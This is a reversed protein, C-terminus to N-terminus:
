LSLRVRVSHSRRRHDADRWHTGPRQLDREDLRLLERVSLGASTTAGEQGVPQIRLLAPYAVLLVAANRRPTGSDGHAIPVSRVSRQLDTAARAHGGRACIGM